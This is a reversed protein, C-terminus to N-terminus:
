KWAQVKSSIDDLGECDYTFTKNLLIKQFNQFGNALALIVHNSNEGLVLKQLSVYCWEEIKGGGPLVKNEETAHQLRYVLHWLQHELSYLVAPNPHCLVLTYLN